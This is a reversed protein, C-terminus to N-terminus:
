EYPRSGLAILLRYGLVKSGERPLDSAKEWSTPHVLVHYLAGRNFVGM